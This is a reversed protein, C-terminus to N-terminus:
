CMFAKNFATMGTYLPKRESLLPLPEVVTCFGQVIEM